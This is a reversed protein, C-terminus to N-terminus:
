LLGLSRARMSADTRNTAGTVAIIQAVHTKVTAPSLELARAIDKNSLGQALLKVVDIQRASLPGAGDRDVPRPAVIRLEALRPPLYRGGALVLEIAALLVASTSQKPAFGAVGLSLLELLLGDDHSGTVVLLPMDPAAAKLREIGALADAGPMGLDVLCFDAGKAALAWASPFDGAELIEAAPWRRAILGGLAERVLVHDDCILCSQM